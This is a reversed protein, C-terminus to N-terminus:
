DCCGVDPGVKFSNITPNYIFESCYKYCFKIEIITGYADDIGGSWRTANVQINNEHLSKQFKRTRPEDIVAVIDPMSLLVQHNMYVTKNDITYCKVEKMYAAYVSLFKETDVFIDNITRSKCPDKCKDGSEICAKDLKDIMAIEINYCNRSTKGFLNDYFSSRDFMFMAPYEWSLKSPNYKEKEWLRSYFYPKDKDKMTKALNPSNIHSYDELVAFTNVRECKLDMKPFYRVFDQALKYLISIDLM